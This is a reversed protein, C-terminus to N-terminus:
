NLYNNTQLSTPSYALKRLIRKTETKTAIKYSLTQTHRDITESANSNYM